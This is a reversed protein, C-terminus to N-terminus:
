TASIASNSNSKMCRCDDAMVWHLPYIRFSSDKPVPTPLLNRRQYCRITEIGVDTACALRGITFGAENM